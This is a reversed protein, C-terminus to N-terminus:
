GILRLIEAQNDTLAKLLSQANVVELSNRTIDLDFESRALSHSLWHVHQSEGKLKFGYDDWQRDHGAHWDAIMGQVDDRSVHVPLEYQVKVQDPRQQPERLTTWQLLQQWRGLQEPRNLELTSKRLVKRVRDANSLILEHAGPKKFLQTRFRPNLDQPAQGPQRIYGAIQIDADEVPDTWAVHKSFSQLFSEMYQQMPKQGTILHQFRISALVNQQPIFWFYTAFGPIGGEPVDNMVVEPNGVSSTGIAAAVKGETAPTQNWITVVWSTAGATIDMLYVPLYDAGDAVEYTKTAALQKAHCWLSLDTLMGQMSGFAPDDAEGRPYYGCQPVRYFTIKAKEVPM